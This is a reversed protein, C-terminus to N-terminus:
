EIKFLDGNLYTGYLAGNYGCAFNSVYRPDFEDETSLHIATRFGDKIKFLAKTKGYDQIFFAYLDGNKTCAMSGSETVMLIEKQLNNKHNYVVSIRQDSFKYLYVSFEDHHVSKTLIYLGKDFACMTKVIGYATEDFDITECEDSNENLLSIRNNFKNVQSRIWLGLSSVYQLQLIPGWLPEPGDKKESLVDGVFDGAILTPRYNDEKSCFWIKNITGKPNVKKEFTSVYVNKEPTMAINTVQPIKPLKIVDRIIKPDEALDESFGPISTKKKKNYQVYNRVMQNSEKNVKRFANLDEKRLFQFIPNANPYLTSLVTQPVQDVDSAALPVPKDRFAWSARPPTRYPQALYTNEFRSNVGSGKARFVIYNDDYVGFSTVVDEPCGFLFIKIIGQIPGNQILGGTDRLLKKYESVEKHLEKNTLSLNNLQPRTLMPFLSRGVKHSMVTEPEDSAALKLDYNRFYWEPKKGHAIRAIESPDIYEQNQLLELLRNRASVSLSKQPLKQSTESPSKSRSRKSRRSGEM